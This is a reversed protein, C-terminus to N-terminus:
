RQEVGTLVFSSDDWGLREAQRRSGSRGLGGARTGKDDEDPPFFRSWAEKSEDVAGSRAVTSRGLSLRQRRLWRAASTFGAARVEPM